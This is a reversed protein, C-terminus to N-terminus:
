CLLRDENYYMKANKIIHEALLDAFDVLCKKYRIVDVDTLSPTADTHVINNRIDILSNISELLLSVERSKIFSEMGHCIFISELEKQGHKGMNFALKPRFKMLSLLHNETPGYLCLMNKVIEEKERISNEKYASVVIEKVYSGRISDLITRSTHKELVKRSHEDIFNEVFVEFKTIMLVIAIKNFMQYETINKDCQQAYCVLSEIEKLRDRFEDISDM